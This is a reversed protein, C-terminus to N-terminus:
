TGPGEGPRNLLNALQVRNRAGTKAYISTLHNKVTKPSIFLKRGIEKNDLGLAVLRIIEKERDTIASDWGLSDLGQAKSFVPEPPLPWFKSSRRLYFLAPINFLFVFGAPIANAIESRTILSTRQVALSAILAALSVAYAIGLGRAIRRRDPQGGAPAAFLLILVAAVLLFGAIGNLVYIEVYSLTSIGRVFYSVFATLFAVLFLAEIGGFVAKVARPVPRGLLLIIWSFLLYFIGGLLPITILDVILWVRIMSEGPAALVAPAFVEGIFNVVAYAFSVLVFVHYTKLFPWRYDRRLRFSVYSGGVALGILLIYLIVLAPIVNM